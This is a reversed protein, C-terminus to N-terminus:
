CSTTYISPPLVLSYLSPIPDTKVYMKLEGLTVPGGSVPVTTSPLHQSTGVISVTYTAEEMLGTTLTYSYTYGSSVAGCHATTSRHITTLANSIPQM